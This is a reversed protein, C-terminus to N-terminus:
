LRASAASGESLPRQEEEQFLDHKKNGRIFDM